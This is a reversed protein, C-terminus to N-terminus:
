KCTTKLFRINEDKKGFFILYINPRNKWGVEIYKSGDRDNLEVAFSNSKNRKVNYPTSSYTFYHSNVEELDSLKFNTSNDIRVYGNNIIATNGYESIYCGNILSIDSHNSDKSHTSVYNLSLIFIAFVSVLLLYHMLKHKM